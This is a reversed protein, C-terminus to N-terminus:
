YYIFYSVTLNSRPLFNEVARYRNRTSQSFIFINKESFFIKSICQVFLSNVTLHLILVSCFIKERNYIRYLSFHSSIHIITFVSSDLIRVRSQSPCTSTLKIFCLSTFCSKYTKLMKRRIFSSMKILSYNHFVLLFLTLTQVCIKLYHYPSQENSSPKHIIYVWLSKM